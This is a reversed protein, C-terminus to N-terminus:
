EGRVPMATVKDLYLDEFESRTLKGDHNVDGTEFDTPKLVRQLPRSALGRVFEEKTLDNSRAADFQNFSVELSRVAEVVRQNTCAATFEPLTISGDFDRDLQATRLFWDDFNLTFDDHIEGDYYLTITKGNGDRGLSKIRGITIKGDGNRDLSKFQRKALRVLAASIDGYGADASRAGLSGPASHQTSTPAVGCGAVSLAVSLAVLAMWKM